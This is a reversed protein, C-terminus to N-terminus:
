ERVMELRAIKGGGSGGGNENVITYIAVVEFYPTDPSRRVHEHDIVKNGLVIRHVVQTSNQPYQAFVEVYRQYIAERGQQFVQTHINGHWADDTFLDAFARAKQANYAAVLQDIVATYENHIM